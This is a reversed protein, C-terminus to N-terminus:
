FFSGSMKRHERILRSLTRPHVGYREAVEDLPRKQKEVAKRAEVKQKETLAPRRGIRHGRARAAAMGARTRESLIAREFEAMAGMIHFTLRGGSSSTDIAETLSRFEVGRDGLDNILQILEILSRGLRDLRWVILMSGPELASLAKTLGPREFKAGSVGQDTFLRDCGSNTLASVQLDLLQEHTSVRAYGIRKM